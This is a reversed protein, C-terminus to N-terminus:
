KLKKLLDNVLDRYEIVANIEPNFDISHVAENRLKRLKSILYNDKNNILNREHLENATKLINQSASIGNKTAYSNIADELQLWFKTIMHKIPINNFIDQEINSAAVEKLEKVEKTFDLEFDGAKLTKLTRVLQLIQDKYKIFIFAILSPWALSSVLSAIFEKWSM